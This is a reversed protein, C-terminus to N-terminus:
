GKRPICDSHSPLRGHPNRWRLQMARTPLASRVPSELGRSLPKFSPKGLNAVSGTSLAVEVPCPLTESAALRQFPEM